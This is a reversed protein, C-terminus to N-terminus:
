PGVSPGVSPCSRKYLHTTADLFTYEGKINFSISPDTKECDTTERDSEERESQQIDNEAMSEVFQQNRRAIDKLESQTRETQTRERLLSNEHEKRAEKKKMKKTTIVDLKGIQLLPRSESQNRQAFIFPLEESPIKKNVPCNCKIKIIGEKDVMPCQCVLIELMKDLNKDFHIRKADHTNSRQFYLQKKRFYDLKKVVAANDVTPLSSNAREYIKKVEVAVEHFLSSNVSRGGEELLAIYALTDRLTPLDSTPLPKSPGIVSSTKSRSTFTKKAKPM